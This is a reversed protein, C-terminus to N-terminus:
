AGAATADAAVPVAMLGAALLGERDSWLRRGMLFVFVLTAVGALASPARLMWESDFLWPDVYLLEGRFGRQSYDM